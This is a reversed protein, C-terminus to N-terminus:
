LMHDVDDDIRQVWGYITEGEDTIAVRRSTRHFLKVQLHDELIAIRKALSAASTGLENATAAFSGLRAATRFVRLDELLLSDNVFRSDYRWSEGLSVDPM